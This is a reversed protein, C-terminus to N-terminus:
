GPAGELGTRPGGAPPEDSGDEVHDFGLRDALRRLPGPAWWNWDGLLRMTAPVLLVRIITADLLVAIAMGVGISKITIIDALAFAAFVSVMILAAGTIVGATRALGEAVSATNDGTRRYAEQIRSLLLVEYDMSLGFIVSFM